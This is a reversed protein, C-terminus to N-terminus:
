RAGTKSRYGEICFLRPKIISDCVSIVGNKFNLKKVFSIRPRVKNVSWHAHFVYRWVNDKCYFPTGHGTGVLGNARQLIPNGKYKVWPGIPKDSTTYGIGYNISEFHNASYILYYVGNKKLVSPGEVVKAPIDPSLEWVGEAKICEKLTEQRISALDNNMQAVWIVNGDTFRVFYLYPTGDDDIFLSADISKENWLPQKTDQKFPGQPSDATAVCIHEEVSYFLYFKKKSKVYYVEPAWFGWSGYSNSDSLAQGERVWKRLDNSSFCAFGKGATTGGTGYAYYKGEYLMIYPDAIPLYDSEIVYKSNACDEKRFNCTTDVRLAIGVVSGMFLPFLLVSKNIM